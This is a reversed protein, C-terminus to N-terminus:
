RPTWGSPRSGSGPRRPDPSPAISGPYRVRGNLAEAPSPLPPGVSQGSGSGILWIGVCAALAVLGGRGAQGKGM